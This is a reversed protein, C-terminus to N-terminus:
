RQAHVDERGRFLSRFLAIKQATNLMSRAPPTQPKTEAKPAAPLDLGNETLLARLRQNEDELRRCKESLARTDSKAPSDGMVSGNGILATTVSEDGKKPRSDRLAPPCCLINIYHELKNSGPGATNGVRM